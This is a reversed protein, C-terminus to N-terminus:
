QLHNKLKENSRLTLVECGDETVLITHEHQCALSRDISKLTWGDEMEIYDGTSVGVIPEVCFTMGPKLKTGKGPIGFNPVEPKEHLTKGIGHGILDEYIHYGADVTREYIFSGLDGTYIGPKIMQIAKYLTQQNYDVFKQVEKDVKGVTLTIASDSYMGEFVVGCDLTVIDGDKLKYGNPIGHVVTDNVSSCITKPFGHFGKFAPKANNKVINNEALTDLELLSVGPKTHQELLELTEALIKASKKISKIEQPTKINAM